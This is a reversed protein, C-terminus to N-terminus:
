TRQSQIGRIFFRSTKESRKKKKKKKATVLGNVLGSVSSFRREWMGCGPLLYSTTMCQVSYFRPMFSGNIVNRNGVSTM